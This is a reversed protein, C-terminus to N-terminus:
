KREKKDKRQQELHRATDLANAVQDYVAAAWVVDSEDEDVYRDIEALTKYLRIIVRNKPM